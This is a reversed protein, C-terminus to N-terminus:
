VPIIDTWKKCAEFLGPLAFNLTVQTKLYVNINIAYWTERMWCYYYRATSSQLNLNMLAGEQEM